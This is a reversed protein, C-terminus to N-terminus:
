KSVTMELNPESKFEKLYSKDKDKRHLSLFGQKPPQPPKQKVNDIPDDIDVERDSGAEDKKDRSKFLGSEQESDSARHLFDAFFSGTM